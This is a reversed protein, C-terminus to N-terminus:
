SVLFCNIRNDEVAWILFNADFRHFSQSYLAEDDESYLSYSTTLEELADKEPTAGDLMSVPVAAAMLFVRHRHTPPHRLKGSQRLLQLHKFAQVLLRCGLSHAIFDIRALPSRNLVAAIQEALRYAIADARDQNKRFYGRLELWSGADGEWSVTWLRDSLGGTTTKASHMFAQYGKAAKGSSVNFGHILYVRDSTRDGYQRESKSPRRAVQRLDDYDFNLDHPDTFREDSFDDGLLSM